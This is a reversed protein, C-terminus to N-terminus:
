GVKLSRIRRLDRIILFGNLAIFVMSVIKANRNVIEDSLYFPLSEGTVSFVEPLWALGTFMAVYALNIAINAILKSKSWFPTLAQWLSFVISVAFLMTAPMFWEKVVPLFAIHMSEMMKHSMWLSPQVLAILFIATALDTAIDGGKIHQWKANQVPLKDVSWEMQSLTAKLPSDNSIAFFVLTVVAFIWLATDVFGLGLKLVFSIVGVGEASLLSLGTVVAHIAFFVSLASKLIVWYIPMLEQAVLPVPPAFQTAVKRPAGWSALLQNVQATSCTPGMADVEDLLTARIERSIEDKKEDPLYQKVAEVYREVLEM